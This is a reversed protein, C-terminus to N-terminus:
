NEESDTNAAPDDGGANAGELNPHFEPTLSVVPEHPHIGHKLIFVEPHQQLYGLIGGSGRRLIARRLESSIFKPLHSPLLNRSRCVALRAAVLSVMFRLQEEPDTLLRKHHESAQGSVPIHSTININQECESAEDGEPAVPAMRQVCLEPPCEVLRFLHPYKRIWTRSRADTIRRINEPLLQPLHGTVILTGDIPLLDFVYYALVDPHCFPSPGLEHLAICRLLLRKRDILRVRKHNPLKQLSKPVWENTEELEKKLEECTKEQYLAPLCRAKDLWFRVGVIRSSDIPDYEFDLISQATEANGVKGAKSEEGGIALVVALPQTLWKGAIEDLEPLKTFAETHLVRCLRYLNYDEVLKNEPDPIARLVIRSYAAASTFCLFLTTKVRTDPSSDSPQSADCCEPRIAELAVKATEGNLEAWRFAHLRQGESCDVTAREVGAVMEGSWSTTNETLKHATYEAVLMWLQIGSNPKLWEQLVREMSEISRSENSNARGGGEACHGSFTAAGTRSQIIDELPLFLRFSTGGSVEGGVEQILEVYLIGNGGCSLRYRSPFGQLHSKLGNPLSEIVEDPLLKALETLPVVRNHAVFPFVPDTREEADGCPSKPVRSRVARDAPVGHPLTHVALCALRLSTTRLVDKRDGHRDFVSFTVKRRLAVSFSGGYRSPLLGCGRPVPVGVFCKGTVRMCGKGEALNGIKKKKSRRYTGCQM